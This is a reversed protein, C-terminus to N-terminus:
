KRRRIAAIAVMAFGLMPLMSLNVPAGPMLSCHSLIRTAGELQSSEGTVVVEEGSVIDEDTTTVSDDVSDCADGFGDNDVDAQDTNVVTVCNDEDDPVGDGDIDSNEEIDEPSFPIAMVGPKISFGHFAPTEEEGECITKWENSYSSPCAEKVADACAGNPTIIKCALLGIRTSWWTYKRCHSGGRRVKVQVTYNRIEDPKDTITFLCSIQKQGSETIINCGFDVVSTATTAKTFETDMQWGGKHFYLAVGTESKLNPDFPGILRFTYVKKEEDSSNGYGLLKTSYKIDSYTDGPYPPKYTDDSTPSGWPCAMATHLPILLLGAIIAFFTLKIKM